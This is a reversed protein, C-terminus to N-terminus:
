EDVRGLTSILYTYACATPATLDSRAQALLEDYTAADLLGFRVFTEKFTAATALVTDVFSRAGSQNHYGMDVAHVTYTVDIFGAEQLLGYVRPAIGVNDTMAHTRRNLRQLLDMGLREIRNFAASSTQGREYEVINLWGGPRLLQHMQALFSPWYATQIFGSSRMHVLDFSHEHFPLPQMPKVSTFTTNKFARVAARRAAQKILTTDGDIGTVHVHPYLQVVQRAWIGTRCGVDLIQQVEAMAVAEPIPGGLMTTLYPHHVVNSVDEIENSELMDNDM